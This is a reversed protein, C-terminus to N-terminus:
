VRIQLRTQDKEIEAVLAEGVNSYAIRLKKLADKARDRCQVRQVGSAARCEEELREYEARLADRSKLSEKSSDALIKDRMALMDAALLLRNGYKMVHAAKVKDLDAGAAKLQQLFGALHTAGMRYHGTKDSIAIIKGDKVLWEGAAKAPGGSLFSSHHFLTAMHTNSYINGDPDVVYIGWGDGRANTSMSCTNLVTGVKGHPGDESSKVILGDEGVRYEYLKRQNDDLMEVGKLAVSRCDYSPCRKGGGCLYKSTPGMEMKVGTLQDLKAEMDQPEPRFFRYLEIRYQVPDVIHHNLIAGLAGWKRPILTAITQVDDVWFEDRNLLRDSLVHRKSEAGEERVSCAERFKGVFGAFSLRKDVPIHAEAKVLYRHKYREALRKRTDGFIHLTEFGGEGDAVVTGAREFPSVQDGDTQIARQMFDTSGYRKENKKDTVGEYLLKAQEQKAIDFSDCRPQTDEKPNEGTYKIHSWGYGNEQWPCDATPNSTCKQTIKGTAKSSKACYACRTPKTVTLCGACNQQVGRM